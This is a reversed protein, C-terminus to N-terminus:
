FDRGGTWSIISGETVKLAVTALMHNYLASLHQLRSDTLSSQADLLDLQPTVGEQFGIEALRLTEVALELARATSRMRDVTTEYETWATEVGSRIDLEKQSLAIRSQELVAEERLVGARSAGRDLIPVTISLEARWTGDGRNKGRYPDLYGASVGLAAKPRLASREIEIQNKRYGLQQELMARDARNEMALRLSEERNGQAPFTHLSGSVPRMAGPPIAMYNMLSILAAERLGRATSLNARNAALQQDARIVELRNALGLESMKTVERLHQESTLIAAEETDIRSEQLLVNYFRAFLEGVARNEGDTLSLEAISLVQPSQRRTAEDKGGSYLTQSLNATAARNDSRDSGDTTQNERQIDAYARLGAEPTLTGDAQLKFARAKVLEQRLSLLEANNALTLEIAESIDLPRPEAALGTNTLIFLAFAALVLKINM